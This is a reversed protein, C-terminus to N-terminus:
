KEENLTVEMKVVHGSIPDTGVMSTITQGDRLMVPSEVNFQQIVPESGLSTGASELALGKHVLADATPGTAMSREATIDITYVGDRVDEVRCYLNTGVDIYQFQLDEGGAAAGTAVPVRLGFKMKTVENNESQGPKRNPDDYAGIHLTYPLSGIKRDGDYDTFTFQLRLLKMPIAAPKAAVAPAQQARAPLALLAGCIMALAFWRILKM